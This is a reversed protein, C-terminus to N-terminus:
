SVLNYYSLNNVVFHDMFHDYDAFCCSHTGLQYLKSSFEIRCSVECTQRWTFAIYVCM